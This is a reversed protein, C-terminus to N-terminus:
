RRARRGQRTPRHPYSRYRAHHNRKQKHFLEKPILNWFIPISMSACPHPRPWPTKRRPNPHFPSPPNPSTDNLPIHFSAPHALQPLTHRPVQHKSLPKPASQARRSPPIIRRSRRSVGEPGGGFAANQAPGLGAQQVPPNLHFWGRRWVRVYFFRGKPRKQGRRASLTPNSGVSSAFGRRNELGSCEVVRGGRRHAGIM